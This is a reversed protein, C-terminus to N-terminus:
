SLPEDRVTAAGRRRYASPTVSHYEGSAENRRITSHSLQIAVRSMAFAHSNIRSENCTLLEARDDSMKKQAGGRVAECQGPMVQKLM